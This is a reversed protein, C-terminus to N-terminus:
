AISKSITNTKKWTFLELMCVAWVIICPIAKIHYPKLFNDRIPKPFIETPSLCTFIFLVIMLWQHWKLRDLTIYWIAAGAVAIIYSPSEVGPNFVVTFLLIGGLYLQRFQSNQYVEKKLLVLLMSITGALIIWGQDIQISKFMGIVGILSLSDRISQLQLRHFWSQYLFILQDFSVIMLPMAFFLLAWGLGKLIFAGRKKYCLFFVGATLVYIKFFFGFVFFLSAWSTKGKEQYIFVLMILATVTANTQVNEAATIYEILCFWYIFIKKKLEIPMLHIATLLAVTHTLNWLLIGIWDPFYYFLGMFLAFSPSYNYETHYESPYMLYLDYQKKLHEFAAVFSDYNDYSELFAIKLSILVCAILYIRILVKENNFFPKQSIQKFSFSM